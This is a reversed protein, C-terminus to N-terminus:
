RRPSRGRRGVRGPRTTGPIIPVGAAEMRERAALKSGMVEIAEAPPGIWVFGADAVARAFLPTRRSFATAPTSRTPLPGGLRKWSGSRTSTARRPLAPASSTRRTPSRQMCRVVTQKPTSAWPRSESSACRGSSASPSRGATRSSCRRLSRCRAGIRGQRAGTPGASPESSRERDRHHDDEERPVKRVVVVPSGCHEREGHRRIPQVTPVRPAGPARRVEAPQDVGDGVLEEDHRGEDHEDPACQGRPHDGRDDDALKEDRAETEGRELAADHDTSTVEALQLRRCLCQRGHSPPSAAPPANLSSTAQHAPKTASTKM